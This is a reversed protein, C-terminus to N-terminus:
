YIMDKIQTSSDVNTEEAVIGGREAARFVETKLDFSLIHYVGHNKDSPTGIAFVRFGRKM